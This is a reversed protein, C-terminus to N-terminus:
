ELRQAYLGLRESSIWAYPYGDTTDTKFQVTLKSGRIMEGILLNANATNSFGQLPKKEFAIQLNM